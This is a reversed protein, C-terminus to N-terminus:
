GLLEPGFEAKIATPIKPTTWADGFDWERVEVKELSWKVPYTGPYLEYAEGKLRVVVLGDSEFKVTVQRSWEGLPGCCHANNGRMRIGDLFVPGPRVERVVGKWGAARAAKFAAELAVSVGASLNLNAM